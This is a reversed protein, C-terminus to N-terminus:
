PAFFTAALEGLIEDHADAEDAKASLTITYVHTGSVLFVQRLAIQV